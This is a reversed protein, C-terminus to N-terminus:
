HRVSDNLPHRAGLLKVCGTISAVAPQFEDPKGRRLWVAPLASGTVPDGLQWIDGRMGAAVAEGLEVLDAQPRYPEGDDEILGPAGGVNVERFGWDSM